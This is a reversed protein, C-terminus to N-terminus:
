DFNMGRIRLVVMEIPAIVTQLELIDAAQQSLQPHDNLIYRLVINADVLPM